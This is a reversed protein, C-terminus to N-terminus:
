IKVVSGDVYQYGLKLLDDKLKSIMAPYPNKRLFGGFSTKGTSIALINLSTYKKINNGIEKAQSLNQVAQFATPVIGGTSLPPVQSNTSSAGVSTTSSPTTSTPTTSTPTTSSGSTSNDGLTVGSLLADQKKKNRLYLYVLGGVVALSGGIILVKKM